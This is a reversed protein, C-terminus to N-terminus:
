LIYKSRIDSQTHVQVLDVQNLIGLLTKFSWLIASLCSSKQTVRFVVMQWSNLNLM